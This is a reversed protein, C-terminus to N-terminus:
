KGAMEKWKSIGYDAIAEYDQETWQPKTLYKEMVELGVV